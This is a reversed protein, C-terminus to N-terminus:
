YINTGNARQNFIEEQEKIADLLRLQVAGKAEPSLADYRLRDVLTFPWDKQHDGAAGEPIDMCGRPLGLKEEIQRAKKEGFSKNPDEMLDRWYTYRGGCKESLQVATLKLAKLNERRILADESM